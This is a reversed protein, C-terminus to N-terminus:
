SVGANARAPRADSIAVAILLHRARARGAGARRPRPAASRGHGRAVHLLAARAPLAGARLGEGEAREFYCYWLAVSAVFSNVFAAVPGLAVAEGAFATGTTVLTEGLAILFFLRLRELLHEGSLDSHVGGADPGIPAALNSPRGPIPHYFVVGVHLVVVALAWLALRTDGGALAGAVWLVSVGLEWALLNVFHIRQNSGPVFTVTAFAARGVQIAVYPAVFLWARDGFAQGIASSMLLSALMIALLLAQVPRHGPSLWNSLWATMYWAYIVALALILTEAGTRLDFSEVLLHTLQSIAFVFVLDFFLELPTVALSEDGARVSSAFLARV